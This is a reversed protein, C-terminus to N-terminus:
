HLLNVPSRARPVDGRVRLEDAAVDAVTLAQRLSQPPHVLHDMEGALDAHALGHILHGPIDIGVGTAGPHQEVDDGIVLGIDAPDDHCRGHRDIAFPGVPASLM